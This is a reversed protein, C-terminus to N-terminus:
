FAIWNPLFKNFSAKLDLLSQIFFDAKTLFTVKELFIQFLYELFEFNM